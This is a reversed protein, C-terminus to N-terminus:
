NISLDLAGVMRGWHDVEAKFFRTTEAPNGYMPDLGLRALRGQTDADKLIDNIAANLKEVMADGTKAPV